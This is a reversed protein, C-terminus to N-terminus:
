DSYGADRLLYVFGSHVCYKRLRVVGAGCVSSRICHVASASCVAPIASLNGMKDQDPRCTNGYDPRQGRGLDDGRDHDGGAAGAAVGFIDTLFVLIYTSVLATIFQRGTAQGMAWWIKQSFSLEHKNM